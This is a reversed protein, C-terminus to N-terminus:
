PTLVLSLLTHSSSVFYSFRPHCLHHARIRTTNRTMRMMEADSHLEEYLKEPNIKESESLKLFPGCSMGTPRVAKEAAELKSNREEILAKLEEWWAPHMSVHEEIQKECDLLAQVEECEEVPLTAAPSRGSSKAM